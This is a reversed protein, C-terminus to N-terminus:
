RKPYRPTFQLAFGDMINRNRPLLLVRARVQDSFLKILDGPLIIKWQDNVHLFEWWSAQSKNWTFTHVHHRRDWKPTNVSIFLASPNQLRRNYVQEPIGPTTFYIVQQSILASLTEILPRPISLSNNKDPVVVYRYDAVRSNNPM